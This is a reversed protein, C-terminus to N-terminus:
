PQSTWSSTDGSEFGDAFLRGDPVLRLDDLFADLAVGAGASIRTGCLASVSGPRGDIALDFDLFAGGTDPALFVPSASALIDGACGVADHLSCFPQLGVLPAETDLRVRGDLLLAVNPSVAVCQGYSASGPQDSGPPLHAAGSGSLPSADADTPSHLTAGPAPSVTAWGALDCDFSGNAFLNGPDVRFDRLFPDGGTGDGNGDLANGAADALDGCVVLRYQGSALAGAELTATAGAIDTGVTPIPVVTDAGTGGPCDVTDFGAGPMPAVLRYSDPSSLGGGMPEDFAVHLRHISVTATECDELVGDGTSPTSDVSAVSPPTADLVVIEEACDDGPDPDSGNLGDDAVCATNSLTALGGPVPDDLVVAFAATATAGGRALSGIELECVTGAPQTTCASATGEITWGPNTPASSTGFPVTETIVVGTAEQSGGNTVALDFVITAGPLPIPGDYTKSIGLSPTADLPTTVCSDNDAPDPDAGGLGDDAIAACNTIEDLGSPAPELVVVSFTAISGDGVALAGLARECVTGAPRADCPTPTGAVFWGPNSASSVTGIPVTETLVVGTADQDGTNDFALTYTVTGGPIAPGDDDKAVELDPAADVPTEDCAIDNSPNPDEGDVGDSTITACNSVSEAGAEVPSAVVVVFSVSGPSGVALSGVAFTCVSGPNGDPVCSWGPTSASDFSTGLPVTETLEVGTADQDGVNEVGLTYTVAGGAGASADGDSKTVELDPAATVPTSDCGTDNGPVPDAGNSGDDSVTACNDIAVLGSPVAADVVVEFTATDTAGGGPLAGLGRECVTGAPQGACPTASGEVLWGLNTGSTTALPVTETVLVGEAGQDGSNTVTSTWTIADGPSITAGGDSKVLGLEPAAVVLTTTPDATGGLAPDDTSVSGFNGGEVLGQNTVATVGSAVPTAVSPRVVITVSRGPPLDGFDVVVDQASM